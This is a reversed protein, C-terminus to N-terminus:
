SLIHFNRIVLLLPLLLPLLSTDAVNGVVFICLEHHEDCILWKSLVTCPNNIVEYTIVGRQHVISSSIFILFVSIIHFCRLECIEFSPISTSSTMRTNEQQTGARHIGSKNIRSMNNHNSEGSFFFFASLQNSKNFVMCLPVLFPNKHTLTKAAM